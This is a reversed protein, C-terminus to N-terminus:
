APRLADVVAMSPTFRRTTVLSPSTIRDMRFVRPADRAPDFALIYWVPVQVLLGHPEVIRETEHGERDHYVFALACRTTFAREILSLLAPAIAQLSARVSASAAPGVLIRDCLARLARARERPVSGLLRRMAADAARGWPLGDSRRALQTALWLAAIEDDPLTVPVSRARQALQVGGGPGSSADVATGADRLAQIDRLITRRSAGVRVALERVSAISGDALALRLREHRRSIAGHSALQVGSLHTGFFPVLLFV